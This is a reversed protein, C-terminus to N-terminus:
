KQFSHWVICMIIVVSSPRSKKKLFVDFLDLLWGDDLNHPYVEPVMSVYDTSCTIQHSRKYQLRSPSKMYGLEVLSYLSAYPDSSRTFWGSTYSGLVWSNANRVDNSFECSHRFAQQYVIRDCIFGCACPYRQLKWGPTNWPISKWPSRPTYHVQVLEDPPYSSSTYFPLPLNWTSLPYSIFNPVRSPWPYFWSV